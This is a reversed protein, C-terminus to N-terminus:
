FTEENGEEGNGEQRALTEKAGGSEDKECATNQLWM